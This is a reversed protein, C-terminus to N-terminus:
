ACKAYTTRNGATTVRPKKPPTCHPEAEDTHGDKRLGIDTVMTESQSNSNCSTSPGLKFFDFMTM